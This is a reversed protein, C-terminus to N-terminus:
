AKLSQMEIDCSIDHEACFDLVEQTEAMGGILSGALVRRRMVLDGAQLAPEVPELLGVLIHVGDVSLCNIYRNLDHQVPITGLLYDFQETAAAM